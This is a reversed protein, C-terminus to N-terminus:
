ASLARFAGSQRAAGGYRTGGAYTAHQAAPMVIELAREVYASQRLLGERLPQLANALAQIRPMYHGARLDSRKVEGAIQLLDVVLQQLAGSAIHVQHPNGDLVVASQESLQQEILDLQTDILSTSM